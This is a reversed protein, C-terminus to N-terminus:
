LWPLLWHGECYVHIDIEHAPQTQATTELGNETMTSGKITLYGAASLGHMNIVRNRLKVTCTVELISVSKNIAKHCGDIHM